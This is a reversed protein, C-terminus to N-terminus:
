ENVAKPRTAKQRRQEKRELIKNVHGDRNAEMQSVRRAIRRLSFEVFAAATPTLEQRAAAVVADMQQELM